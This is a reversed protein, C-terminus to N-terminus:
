QSCLHELRNEVQNWALRPYIRVSSGGDSTYSSNPVLGRSRPFLRVPIKLRGKQDVMASNSM